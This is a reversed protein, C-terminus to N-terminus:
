DQIAEATRDEPVIKRRAKREKFTTRDKLTDRGHIKADAEKLKAATDAKQKDEIGKLLKALHAQVLEAATRKHELNGDISKLITKTTDIYGEQLDIINASPVSLALPCHTAIILQRTVSIQPFAMHWLFFQMELSLSKDPEDLLITIRGTPNLSKVYEVFATGTSSWVDNAKGFPNITIDPVKKDIMVFLQNLKNMRGQGQSEISRMANMQEHMNTTLGDPSMSPDDIFYGMNKAINDTASNNVFTPTGDWAVNATCKAPSIHVFSDPFKVKDKTSGLDLPQPAKSWGGSKHNIGCYAGMISLLTSKGTGNPSFLVNLGKSFEFTKGKLCPLESAYGGTLTASSIM